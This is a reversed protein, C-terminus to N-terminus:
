QDAPASPVLKWTGRVTRPNIIRQRWDDYANEKTGPALIEIHLCAKIAARKEDQSLAQWAAEVDDAEVLRRLGPASPAPIQSELAARQEAVSANFRILQAVTVAGTAAAEAMETARADLDAIGARIGALDVERAEARALEERMGPDSLQRVMLQEVLDDIPEAERYFHSGAVRCRYRRRGNRTGGSIIPVGCDGCM